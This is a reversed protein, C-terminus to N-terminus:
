RNVIRGDEVEFTDFELPLAGLIKAVREQETDTIFVQGFSGDAILDLLHTVRQNDLKDFLDDLLLLPKRGTHDELFRYQALKLAILASKKQGQSGFKKLEHGDLFFSIDDRHIGKTTRQLARDAELNSKMLENFGTGTLESDYTMTAEEDRDVITRHLEAFIPQFEGVFEKRTEHLWESIPAMKQNYAELLTPDWRNSSAMDKLFANRQALVKNFDNLNDLYHRDSFALSFDLFRRRGESGGNILNIDDPAIVVVPYQGFHESLKGVAVKDVEIRKRKGPEYVCVIQKQEKDDLQMLGVLRLFDTGHKVNQQDIPNFYSKGICLYHIADLLNTKGAGNPGTFAVVRKSFSLKAKDYAKFQILNLQQLHM